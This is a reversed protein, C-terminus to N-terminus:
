RDFWDHGSSFASLDPLVVLHEIQDAHIRVHRDLPYTRLSPWVSDAAGPSLFGPSFLPEQQELILLARSLLKSAARHLIRRQTHNYAVFDGVSYKV